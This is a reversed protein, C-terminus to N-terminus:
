KKEPFPFVIELDPHDLSKGTTNIEKIWKQYSIRDETPIDSWYRTPLLRTSEECFFSVTWAIRPECALDMGDAGHLTWGHHFTVDGMKLPSYSQVQYRSSLDEDRLFQRGRWYCGSFDRHSGSAFYLPALEETVPHLPIWATVFRNTDIPAMNLDSHWLTAGDGGRKVFISDQYVRLRKSGLLTAAAQALQEPVLLSPNMKRLNFLQLFPIKDNEVTELSEKAEALTKPTELGLVSCKQQYSDLLRDEFVKLTKERINEVQKELLLGRCAVHGEREFQIIHKNSVSRNKAIKPKGGGEGEVTKKPSKKAVKFGANALISDVHEQNYDLDSGADLTFPAELESGTNSAEDKSRGRQNRPRFNAARIPDM